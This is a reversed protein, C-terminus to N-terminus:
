QRDYVATTPEKVAVPSGTSTLTKGHDSVTYTAKFIPKGKIKETMELTNDNSKTMALTLGAPVTPGVAPYDKGDFKLPCKGKIQPINLAIGDTGNPAFELVESSSEQVGKSKWTGMMGSGEGVRQYAETEQFSSGDPRTGKATETLSNGDPSLQLTTRSLVKGKFTTTREWTNPDVKKVSVTRGFLGPYQKGDTRFDYSEGGSSYRVMNSGTPELKMTEGAFDSKATDLKWTGIFPNDAAAMLGTTFLVLLSATSICIKM